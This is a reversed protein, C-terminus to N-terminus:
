WDYKDRQGLLERLRRDIIENRSQSRDNQQELAKNLEEQLREAREARLAQKHDFIENLKEQLEQEFQAREDGDARRARRALRQSEMEMRM